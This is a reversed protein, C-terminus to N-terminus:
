LLNQPSGLLSPNRSIYPRYDTLSDPHLFVLLLYLLKNSNNWKQGNMFTQQFQKMETGEHFNTPITENRDRGGYSEGSSRLFFQFLAHDWYQSWKAARSILVRESPQPPHRTVLAPWGLEHLCGCTRTDRTLLHGCTAFLRTSRVRRVDIILRSTCRVVVMSWSDQNGNCWPKDACTCIGARLLAPPARIDEKISISRLVTVVGLLWLGLWKFRNLKSLFCCKHCLCVSGCTKHEGHFAHMCCNVNLTQRMKIKEEMWM